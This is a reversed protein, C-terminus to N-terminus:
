PTVPLCACPRTRRPLRTPWREGSRSTATIEPPGSGRRSDGLACFTFGEGPAPATSFSKEPSWGYGADGCTYYYRTGPVLGTLEVDRVDVTAGGYSHSTGFATSTYDGPATGYSVAPAYGALGPDTDWTVTATSRPDHQWTLRVHYPFQTAPLAPLAPVLCLGMLALTFALVLSVTKKNASWAPHMKLIWARRAKENMISFSVPGRITVADGPRHGQRPM